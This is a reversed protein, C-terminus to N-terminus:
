SVQEARRAAIRILRALEQPHTLHVGHGAGAIEAREGQPLASALERAARRQAASSLSGRGVTVPISVLAPDFVPGSGLSRMEAVLTQGESRREARTSAPLREWIRDGVMRRMFREAVEAPEPPGGPGTPTAPDVDDPKPWWPLWPLPPEWVVAARILDPHSAAAALVVDGGFSHGFAVAPTDGLVAVLDAVQDDFSSGPSLHSSGAYGRRDYALITWDPLKAMLRTFSTARDM